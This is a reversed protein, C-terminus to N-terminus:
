PTYAHKQRLLQDLEQTAQDVIQHIQEQTTEPDDRFPPRISGTIM